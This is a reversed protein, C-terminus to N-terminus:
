TNMVIYQTWTLFYPVVYENNLSNM